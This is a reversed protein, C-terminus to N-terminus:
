RNTDWPNYPYSGNSIHCIQYEWKPTRSTMNKDMNSRKEKEDKDKKGYLTPRDDCVYM